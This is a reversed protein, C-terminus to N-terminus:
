KPADQHLGTGSKLLEPSGYVLPFGVQGFINLSSVAVQIVRLLDGDEQAHDGLLELVVQLHVDAAQVGVGLGPGLDDGVSLLLRGLDVITTSCRHAQVGELAVFTSFSLTAFAFLIHDASRAHRSLPAAAKEDKLEKEALPFVKEKKGAGPQDFRRAWTLQTHLNKETREQQTSLRHKEARKRSREKIYALRGGMEPKDREQRSSHGAKTGRRTATQKEKLNKIVAGLEQLEAETNERAPNDATMNDLAKQLDERRSVRSQLMEGLLVSRAANTVGYAPDSAPVEQRARKHPPVYRGTSPESKTAEKAETRRHPPM